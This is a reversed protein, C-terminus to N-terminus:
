LNGDKYKLLFLMIDESKGRLQYEDTRSYVADKNWRESWSQANNCAGGAILKTSYELIVFNHSFTGSVWEGVGIAEDAILESKSDSDLSFDVFIEFGLTPNDYVKLIQM